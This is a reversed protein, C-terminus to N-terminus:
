SPKVKLTCISTTFGVAVITLISLFFTGSSFLIGGLSIVLADILFIIVGVNVHYLDAFFQALLDTGGTSAGYRLMLGIGLGVLFGGILSGAIPNMQFHSKFFTSSPQFFDIFLSSILLGHLSNYFYSRYKFWAIVFIPISIIIITLGPSWGWIYNTILGLGIVGGDLVKLPMLFWNVGIALVTSGSIIAMLKTVFPM